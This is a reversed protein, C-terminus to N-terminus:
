RFRRYRRQYLYGAGAVLVPGDLCAVTVSHAVVGVVGLVIGVIAMARLLQFYRQNVQKVTQSCLTCRYHGTRYRGDADVTHVYYGFPDVTRGFWQIHRPCLSGGCTACRQTSQLTCDPFDCVEGPV